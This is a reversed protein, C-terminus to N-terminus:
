IVICKRNANIQNYLDIENYDYVVPTENEIIRTVPPILKVIKYKNAISQNSSEETVSGSKESNISGNEKKKAFYDSLYQLLRSTYELLKNCSDLIKDDKYLNNDQCLSQLKESLCKCNVAGIYSCVTKLSHSVKRLEEWNKKAVCAKIKEIADPLDKKMFRKLFLKHNTDLFKKGEDFDIFNETDM